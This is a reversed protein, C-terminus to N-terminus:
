QPLHIWRARADSLTGGCNIARGQEVLRSLSQNVIVADLALYEAIEECFVQPVGAGNRARAGGWLSRNGLAEHVRSDTKFERKEQQGAKLASFSPFFWVVLKYAGGICAILSAGIGLPAWNVTLWHWLNTM